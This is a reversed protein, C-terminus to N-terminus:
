EHIIFKDTIDSVTKVIVLICDELFVPNAIEYPYLIFIDGNTLTKDQIQMSGSILFNIETGSKHYHTPWREGKFHKKYCVEFNKTKYATPEFDGIFWGGKMDNFKYVEM